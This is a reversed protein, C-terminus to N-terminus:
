CEAEAKVNNMYHLIGQPDCQICMDIGQIIQMDKCIVYAKKMEFNGIRQLVLSKPRTYVKGCNLCVWIFNYKAAELCTNCVYIKVGPTAEVYTSTHEERCISCCEMNNNVDLM